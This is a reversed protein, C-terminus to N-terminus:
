LIRYEAFVERVSRGKALEARVRNEGQVKELARAFVTEALEAPVVVVGDIDGFVWDGPRVVGDGIRIPHGHSIGDLRGKSDLPCFGAAFVPFDMALIKAADRTMGDLVVGVAGHARAATSLLEGWLASGRDGHTTAVLVDGPRLADICELEVAYPQQPEVAVPLVSLTAARGFLRWEPRLPRLDAPLASRRQGLSDLVDALVASYLLDQHPGYMTRLDPM